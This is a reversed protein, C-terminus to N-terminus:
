RPPSTEDSDSPYPKPGPEPPASPIPPPAPTPAPPRGDGRQRDRWSVYPKFGFRTLVAAGVGTFVPYTSIVIAVVLLFTGFGSSVTGGMGLLFAAAFWLVMLTLIGILSQFIASRSGGALRATIFSGIRDGFAVMGLVAGFLYVLPVFITLVSGIITVVLLLVIVPTLLIFFFGVAYTKAQNESICRNIIKMQNPMLAVVLFGFFVFIAAFVVVVVMGVASFTETIDPIYTVIQEGMVMGGEKVIIEPAIVDGDVRGTSTVLVRKGFSTVDGKVWGKVTVRGLAVISGEVYEDPGVLLSHVTSPVKKEVTCREEVPQYDSVRAVGERGDDPPVEPPIGVVFINQQFDFYWDYGASDLARIGDPGLWIEVFVTDAPRYDQDAESQAFIDTTVTSLLLASFFTLYTAVSYPRKRM